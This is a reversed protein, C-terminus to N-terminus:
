KSLINKQVEYAINDAVLDAVLLDQSTLKDICIDKMFFHESAAWLKHLPIRKVGLIWQEKICKNDFFLITKIIEQNRNTCYQNNFYNRIIEKDYEMLIRLNHCVIKLQEQSLRKIEIKYEKDHITELFVNINLENKRLFNIIAFFNEVDVNAGIILEKLYSRPYNLKSPFFMYQDAIVFIRKEAEYSWDKSKTNLLQGIESDNKLFTVSPRIDSYIVDLLAYNKKNIVKDDKELVLEDRSFEYGLCIGTHQDGYHSWMLISDNVSSFCTIGYKTNELKSRDVEKALKKILNNNKDNLLFAEMEKGNNSDWNKKIYKELEEKVQSVDINANTDFPDNFDIPTNFWWINNIINEQIHSNKWASYKYLM